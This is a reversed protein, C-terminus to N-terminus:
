KEQMIDGTKNKLEEDQMMLNVLEEMFDGETIVGGLQYSQQILRKRSEPSAKKYLDYFVRARADPNIYTMEKVRFDIGEGKIRKIYMNMLDESERPGQQVIWKVIDNPKEKKAIREKLGNEMVQRERNSRQQEEKALSKKAYPSTKKFFRRSFPATTLYEGATKNLENTVEEDFGAAAFDLAEGMISGLVNSRTTFQQAVYQSRVPSLGTIQGFKVYREPTRGPTYELAKNDGFDRGTWLPEEFYLDTNLKYGLIARELPPMNGLDTVNQILSQAELWRQKNILGKEVGAAELMTGEFLGTILKQTNDKPFKFYVYRKNGSHDVYNLPTMIVFNDAKVRDSIDNMFYMRMEEKQADRKDREEEDDDRGLVKDFLDGYLGLNWAMIAVATGGLQAMKWALVRPNNKAARITGRTVQFGANLYPIVSNLLKVSHGGQSFDLYNRAAATARRQIEKLEEKNPDRNNEKKFDSLQNTISRERLALRTLLESTNGLYAAGDALAKAGITLKNYHKFKKPALSGQTTLFDMNGGEEVYQKFRGKRKIVDPLVKKVDSLMQATAVPYFSSYQETTTLIHLMDLPINKVMFEPNYGTAFAKLIKTGTIWSLINTTKTLWEPDSTSIFEDVLENNVFIRADAGGDRFDFATYGRPTDQWEPPIYKREEKPKELEEQLREKFKNTLKGAKIVQSDPNQLAFDKMAKMTRTRAIISNTRNINDALLTQVDTLIAGFSGGSLADIGSIGGGNDVEDVFHQLYQRRNYYPQEDKLKTYAAENIVGENYLKELNDRMVDWYVEARERIKDMNLSELGLTQMVEPDNSEMAKIIDQAEELNTGEPHKLREEGRKDYLKDLEVIRRYKLYQELALQEGKSLLNGWNGLIKARAKTFENNNQGSIGSQLNFYDVARQGFNPDEKILAVRFNESKDVFVKRAWKQMNQANTKQISKLANRENTMSAALTDAPKRRKEPAPEAVEKEKPPKKKPPEAEEKYGEKKLAEVIADANDDILKRSNEDDIHVKLAKLANRIGLELDILGLEAFDKMLAVIDTLVDPKKGDEGVAFKAGSIRAMRQSIDAIVEPRKEKLKSYRDGLGKKLKSEIDPSKLATLQVDLSAIRGTDDELKDERRLADKRELYPKNAKIKGKSLLYDLEEMSQADAILNEPKKEQINGVKKQSEQIAKSRDISYVSGLPKGEKTRLPKQGEGETRMEGTQRAYAEPKVQVKEGKRGKEKAGEYVVGEGKQGRQVNVNQGKIQMSKEYGETKLNTAQNIFQDQLKQGQEFTEVYPAAALAEKANGFARYREHLTNPDGGQYAMLVVDPEGNNFRKFTEKNWDEPAYQDNWKVKAVPVFGFNYYYQTLATNYHDLKRGGEKIAQMIAQPARGKGEGQSFVSIITGDKDIAAGALGDDTLFKRSTQYDEVPYVFVSAAYPNDKKSESISDHFLQADNVESFSRDIKINPDASTLSKVEQDSLSYQNVSADATVRRSRGVDYRSERPPTETINRRRLETGGLSLESDRRKIKEDLKSGYDKIEKETRLSLPKEESIIAEGEVPMKEEKVLAPEKPKVKEVPVEEKVEAAKAIEEEQQGQRIGQATDREIKKVMYNVIAEQQMPELQEYGNGEMKERMEEIGKSSDIDKIIRNRINEDEIISLGNRAAKYANEDMKQQIYGPIEAAKFVGGAAAVTGLIELQNRADFLDSISADGTAIAQMITAIQEEGYESLLGDWKAVKKFDNALKNFRNLGEAGNIAKGATKGANKFSSLKEGVYRETFLEITTNMWSKYLAEAPSEETGPIAEVKGSEGIGLMGTRKEAAQKWMMATFPASAASSIFQQLGYKSVINKLEGKALTKIGAGAQQGIGKTLAMQALFPAMEALGLGINYSSPQDKNLSLEQLLYKTTLLTQEEDTLEEGKRSKKAVDALNLGEFMEHYGLTLWDTVDKAGLGKWFANMGEETPSDMLKEISRIVRKTQNYNRLQETRTYTYPIDPSDETRGTFYNYSRNIKKIEDDVFAKTQEIQPRVIESLEAFRAAREEKEKKQIEIERKEDVVFVEPEVKEMREDPKAGPEREYVTRFGSPPKTEASPSPGGSPSEGDGKKKVNFTNFFSEKSGPVEYGKGKLYDYYKDAKEPDTLTSRFSEESPLKEGKKDLYDYYMKVKDEAM